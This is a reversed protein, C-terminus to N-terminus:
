ELEQELELASELSIEKMVGISEYKWTPRGRLIRKSTDAICLGPNRKTQHTRRHANHGLQRKWSQGLNIEEDKVFPSM